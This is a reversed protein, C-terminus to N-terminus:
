NWGPYISVLSGQRHNNKGHVDHAVGGAVTAHMTGPIIPPIYDPHFLFLDKFTAGGQCVAIKSNADFSILHNFRKTDIVLGNKNLCSDNYSLGAGRTLLSLPKNHEIYNVLQEENEPRICYSESSVACSFSTLAIKKSHM